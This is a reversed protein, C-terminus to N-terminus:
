DMYDQIDIGDEEDDEYIEEEIESLYEYVEDLLPHQVDNDIEKLTDKIENVIRLIRQKMTKLKKL